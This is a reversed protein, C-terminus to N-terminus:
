VGFSPAAMAMWVILVTAAGYRTWWDVPRRRTLDVSVAILTAFTPIGWFIPYSHYLIFRPIYASLDFHIETAICIASLAFGLWTIRWAIGQRRTKYIVFALIPLSVVYGIDAPVDRHWVGLITGRSDAVGAPLEDSLRTRVVLTAFLTLAWDLLCMCAIILSLTKGPSDWFKRSRAAISFLALACGYAVAVLLDFPGAPPISTLGRYHADIPFRLVVLGRSVFFAFAICSTIWLLHRIALHESHNIAANKM